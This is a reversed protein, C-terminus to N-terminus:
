LRLSNTRGAQIYSSVAAVLVLSGTLVAYVVLMAHWSPMLVIEFAQELFPVSAFASIAFLIGGIISSVFAALAAVLVSPGGVKWVQAGLMLLLGQETKLHNNIRATGAVIVLFVLLCGPIGCAGVALAVAERISGRKKIWELNATVVSVSKLEEVKQVIKEISAWPTMVPFTVSFVKPLGKKPGVAKLVEEDLLEKADIEQIETGPVIAQLEQLLLEKVNPPAGPETFLSIEDGAMERHSNYFSIFGLAMQGFVCFSLSYLAIVFLLSRRGDKFYRSTRQGVTIM